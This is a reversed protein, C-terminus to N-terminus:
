DPRGASCRRRKCPPPRCSGVTFPALGSVQVLAVPAQPWLGSPPPGAPSSPGDASPRPSPKRVDGSFTGVAYPTSRYGPGWVGFPLVRRCSQLGSSSRSLLNRPSFFSPPQAESSPLKQRPPMVARFPMRLRSVLCIADRMPARERHRNGAVLRQLEGIAIASVDAKTAVVLVYLHGPLIRPQALSKSISQRLYPM